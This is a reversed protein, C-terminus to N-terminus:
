CQWISPHEHVVSYFLVNRGASIIVKVDWRSRSVKGQKRFLTVTRWVLGPM